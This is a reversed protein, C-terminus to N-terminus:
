QKQTNQNTVSHAGYPTLLATIIFSCERVQLKQWAFTPNGTDPHVKIGSPSAEDEAM